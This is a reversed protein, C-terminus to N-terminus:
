YQVLLADFYDEKQELNRRPLTMAYAILIKRLRLMNYTEFVGVNAPLNTNDEDDQENSM